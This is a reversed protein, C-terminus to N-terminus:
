VLGEDPIALTAGCHKCHVSDADHLFLGCTKCDFRVKFPRIITQILRIFLSVGFIMIVISILRGTTNKLTIDGFGTTTLTTVTFYMADVFNNIEPNRGIQTVFVLEAIVFIFLILNVSALLMDERRRFFLFDTRLKQLIAYSRMLRILRLARLFALNEGILPALLSAIVVLDVINWPHILFRMKLPSIILRACFDLGIYVGFVIDIFEVAIHGYFFTSVILYFITAGDLALLAYRFRHALESDGEYLEQLTTKLSQTM